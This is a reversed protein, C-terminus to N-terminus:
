AFNIGDLTTDEVGKTMNGPKGKIEEYCAILFYPDSIIQNMVNNYKMDHTLLVDLKSNVINTLTPKVSKTIKTKSVSNKKSNSTLRNDLINVSNGKVRVVSSTHFSRKRMSPTPGGYAILDRPGTTTRNITRTVKAAQEIRQDGM